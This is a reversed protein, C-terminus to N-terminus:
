PLESMFAGHFGFPVVSHIQARAIEQMTKASLVVLFSEAKREDLVVSLLVGDDEDHGQPDAIFIPEGPRCDAEKWVWSEGTEVNTKSVSDSFIGYETSLDEINSGYFYTYPRCYYADNVRPLEPTVDKALISISAQRPSETSSSVDSLTYRRVDQVTYKKAFPKKESVNALYVAQVISADKYGIVDLTLDTGNDYANISHFFFFAPAEYTAVHKRQRRDFVFFQTPANEDFHLSGVANRKEKLERGDMYYSPVCLVYYNETLFSSHIYAANAPVFGVLEGEPNADSITFVNYGPKPGLVTVFQWTENTNPDVCPHAASLMGDFKSNFKAYQFLEQPELTKWDLNVLRNADTLVTVVKPNNVGPYKVAIVVNNNIDSPGNEKPKADVNKMVSATKAFITQCIDQGFTGGCQQGNKISEEVGSATNRSMYSVKGNEIEFRHIQALGDFWHQIEYRRGDPLDIDFTGPGARYLVGSVWAPIDGHVTCQVPDLVEPQTQFGRSRQPLTSLNSNQITM